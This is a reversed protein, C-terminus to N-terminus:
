VYGNWNSEVRLPELKFAEMVTSIVKKFQPSMGNTTDEFNARIGKTTGVKDISEALRVKRDARRKRDGEVTATSGPTSDSDQTGSLERAIEDTLLNSCRVAKRHCRFVLRQSEGAYSVCRLPRLLNQLWLAIITNPEVQRWRFYVPIRGCHVICSRGM